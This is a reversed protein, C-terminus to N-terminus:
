YAAYEPLDMCRISGDPRISHVQLVTGGFEMILAVMFPIQDGPIRVPLPPKQSLKMIADRALQQLSEPIEGQWIYEKGDLSFRIFAGQAIEQWGGEILWDIREGPVWSIHYGEGQPFSVLRHTLGRRELAM